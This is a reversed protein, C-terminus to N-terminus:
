SMAVQPWSRELVLDGSRELGLADQLISVVVMLMTWPLLGMSM